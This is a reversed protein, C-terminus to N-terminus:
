ETPAPKLGARIQGLICICTSVEHLHAPKFGAGVHIIEFM